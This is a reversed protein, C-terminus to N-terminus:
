RLHTRFFEVTNGMAENFASGSINHGGSPYEHLEHTVGADTLLRDLDKSYGINVVNDDIAHHLQIATKVGSLYNIATVEQWFPSQPDFEGYTKFLLDRERQRETADAPPRYSGDQIGYKKWDEYTYVAGAWIVAAPIEPKAALARLTVNGAMSHGWIGIGNPNVDEFNRLASYANLTDIIYDSSYYAGRAEGESNGYGRLDIKLVVFGSSALYDVYASYNVLTQYNAPPIYGHIFIIAPYGELPRDEIPVTLQANINLGDSDYSTLYSTYNSTESVVEMKGLESEYDRNKLYPITLEYFPGPIPTPASIINLNTKITQKSIFFVTLIVLLFVTLLISAKRM